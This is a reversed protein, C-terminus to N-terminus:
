SNKMARRKRAIFFVYGAALLLLPLVADGLPDKYPDQWGEPKEDKDDEDIVRRPGQSIYEGMEDATVIGTLAAQPLESGSGLMTSTSSMRAEPVVYGDQANMSLICFLGIVILLYKMAKM